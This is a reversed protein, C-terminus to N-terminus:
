KSGTLMESCMASVANIVTTFINESERQTYTKEPHQTENRRARMFDLYGLLTKDADALKELEEVIQGWPKEASELHARFEYYQRLVAEAGRLATMAAATWADAM